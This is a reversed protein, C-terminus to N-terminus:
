LKAREQRNRVIADILADTTPHADLFRLLGALIIESAPTNSKESAKALRARLKVPLRLSTPKDM